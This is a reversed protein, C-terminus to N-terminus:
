NSLRTWTAGEKGDNVKLGLAALEDRIIDSTAYDKAARAQQRLRIILEMLGGVEAGASSDDESKLGLVDELMDTYTERLLKLGEEDFKIEGAAAKNIYGVAEFLMSILRATNLDDNMAAICKAKWASVDPMNAAAPAAQLKLLEKHAAMLRALGKEAADLAEASFDLTSRYHAMLIFFRVTMPSYPKDLVGPKGTELLETMTIFNGISKGMKSGNVTLMNGHMWYKAPTHGTGAVSQAIECEHHPFLLDMGGGHIDFTEGLYKASMASCELHWGPFGVGWPSPWRMIHEPQAKKWLAFDGPHRKDTQGQLTRKEEGAGAELEEIVRGSLIGYNGGKKVYEQVDFYVSGNSEYAMGADMIKQILSLQEIIHGTARPAIDAPLTNLQRMKEEFSDAYRQAIQMPELQEVRAKELMKDQGQDADDTLHGVDTINRVYRVNYGLYRLWRNLVDFSVYTRANGVHPDNYVTPGCVYMGVHPSHLPVFRELSRTLSNYIHLNHEM